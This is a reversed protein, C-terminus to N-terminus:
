FLFFYIYTCMIIQMQNLIRLMYKSLIKTSSLYTIITIYLRWETVFHKYSCLLQYILIFVFLFIHFWFFLYVYLFLCVCFYFSLRCILVDVNGQYLFVLKAFSTLRFSTAYFLISMRYEMFKEIWLWITSNYTFSFFFTVDM